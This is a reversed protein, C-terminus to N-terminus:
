LAERLHSEKKVKVLRELLYATLYTAQGELSIRIIRVKKCVDVSKKIKKSKIKEYSSGEGM